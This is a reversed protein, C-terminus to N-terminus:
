MERKLPKKEVWQLRYKFCMNKSRQALTKLNTKTRQGLM